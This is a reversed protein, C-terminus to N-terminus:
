LNKPLKNLFRVTSSQFTLGFSLFFVVEFKLKMLLCTTEIHTMRKSDRAPQLYKKKFNLACFFLGSLHLKLASVILLLFFITFEESQGPFSVFGNPHMSPFSLIEFFYCVSFAVRAQTNGALTEQVTPPQAKTYLYSSKLYSRLLKARYVELSM